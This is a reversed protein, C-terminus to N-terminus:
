ITRHNEHGEVYIASFPRAPCLHECAGCGVCRAENVAPVKPSSEDGGLHIMTIAGVPCHRECNGCEVGDSVPLCNEKIWVAHGIQISSKDALSISRIAGTPCVDACFTCEPRCYGHEYSMTPQMMNLLGTSPRLVDNPCQAVCLQCGTCHKALNAASISGPPTVPTSRKPAIKDEIVALGGDVKTKEEALAAAAVVLAASSIVARRGKDDPEDPKNDENKKVSKEPKDAKVRTHAEYHLADFACQRLCNGCVVCRSYDVKMERFDICSAKCNRSCKGCKRCKEEDFRIKMWSFRALFSLITGVPCITNCYTRGGYIALTFIVVFTAVAVILTPMSRVWTDVSYFAYSEYHEAISALLNNGAEYAPRFINTMIRGFASYPEILAVVSGAGLIFAAVFLALVTYRLWRREPSYSYRNKKRRFRAMIDQMIGFPCIISCYIRGFVLTLVILVAIVTFNLALLSPLFQIKATWGLWHHLAGSIDLFLLSIAVFMVIALTQRIKRLMFFPYSIIKKGVVFIIFFGAVAFM